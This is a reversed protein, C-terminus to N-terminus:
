RYTSAARVVMKQSDFMSIELEKTFLQHFAGHELWTPLHCVAYRTQFDLGKGAIIGGMAEPALLSGDPPKQKKTKKSTAM